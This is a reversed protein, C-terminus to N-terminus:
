LLGLAFGFGMGILVVASLTPFHTSLREVREGFRDFGVVLALTLGTVVALMAGAYALTVGLCDAAGTCVAVLGLAETHAFGLLFASGVVGLLGGDAAHRDAPRHSAAHEHAHDGARYERVGLVVLVVGAVIALPSGVAVGAVDVATSLGDTLGEARLFLFAGVLSLSAALHGVAVLVGALLGVVRANPRDLAYAAAVPWGHAPEAGHLAGLALAGVAVEPAPTHLM